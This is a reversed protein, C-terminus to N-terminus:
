PLSDADGHRKDTLGALLPETNVGTRSSHKESTLSEKTSCAVTTVCM